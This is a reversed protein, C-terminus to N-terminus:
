TVAFPVTHLIIGYFFILMVALCAFQFFESSTLLARKSKFLFFVVYGSSSHPHNEFHIDVEPHQTKVADILHLHVLNYHILMLTSDDRVRICGGNREINFTRSLSQRLDEITSNMRSVRSDKLAFVALPSIYPM